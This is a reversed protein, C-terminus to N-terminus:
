KKAGEKNKEYTISKSKYDENMFIIKLIQDNPIFRHNVFRIHEGDVSKLSGTLVGKKRISIAEFMRKEGNKFRISVNEIIDNIDNMEDNKPTM